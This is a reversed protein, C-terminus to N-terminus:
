FVSLSDIKMCKHYEVKRLDQIKVAFKNHCAPCIFPATVYPGSPDYQFDIVPLSIPDPNNCYVCLFVMSKIGEMMQERVSSPNDFDVHLAGSM